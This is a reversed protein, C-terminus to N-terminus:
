YVNPSGWELEALHLHESIPILRSHAFAQFVTTLLKEQFLPHEFLQITQIILIMVTCWQNKNAHLYFCTALKCFTHKWISWFISISHLPLYPTFKWRSSSTSTCGRCQSWFPLLKCESHQERHIHDFNFLHKNCCSLTTPVAIHLCNKWLGLQQLWQIIRCHM